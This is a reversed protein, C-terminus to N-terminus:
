GQQRTTPLIITVRRNLAQGQPTANDAVPDAEGFGQPALSVPAGALMPQLVQAVATARQQSLLLGHAASGLNDTYGNIQITGTLHAAIIRHALDALAAQAPPSLQASDFGFLVDSAIVVQTGAQVTPAAPVPLITPQAPTAPATTPPPQEQTAAKASSTTPSASPAGPPLTSGSSTSTALANPASADVPNQDRAVIRILGAAAVAALVLLVVLTLMARRRRPAPPAPVPEVEVTGLLSVASTTRQRVEAVMSDAMAAVPGGGQLQYRLAALSTELDMDGLLGDPLLVARLHVNLRVQRGDGPVGMFPARLTGTLVGDDAIGEAERRLVPIYGIDTFATTLRGLAQVAPLDAIVAHGDRVTIRATRNFVAGAASVDASSLASALATMRAQISDM